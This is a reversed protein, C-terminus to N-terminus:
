VGDVVGLDLEVQEEGVLVAAGALALAVDRGVALDGLVVVAALKPM